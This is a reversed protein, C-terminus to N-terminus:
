PSATPGTVGNVGSSKVRLAQPTLGGGTNAGSIGAHVAPSNKSPRPLITKFITAPATSPWRSKGQAPPIAPPSPRRAPAIQPMASATGGLGGVGTEGGAGGLGPGIVSVTGVGPAVPALTM